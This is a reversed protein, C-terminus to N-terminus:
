DGFNVPHKKKKGGNEKHINVLLGGGLLIKQLGSLPLGKGGGGHIRQSTKPKRAKQGSAM